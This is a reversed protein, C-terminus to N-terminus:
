AVTTDRRQALLKRYFAAYSANMYPNLWLMGIGLTLVCLLEWGIFTLGLIFHDGKYGKMLETSAAIAESATMDPHDAMIFPTMSYGIGKIIGPIIFLLAWLFTYLGRLFAQAFGQGFRHFQSFLDHFDPERHDHQKLLYQSYGLQVAGGLIFQVFGLFAAIRLWGKVFKYTTYSLHSLKDADINLDLDIGTGAVLGGLLAAVLTVGISLGWNGELNERATQRIESYNM